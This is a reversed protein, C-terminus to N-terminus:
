NEIVNQYVVDGVINFIKIEAKGGDLQPVVINFSANAPNPFIKLKSGGISTKDVENSIQLAGAYVFMFADAVVVKSVACGSDSVVVRAGDGAPFHFEGLLNWVSGNVTQDIVFRRSGDLSRVVVSADNARNTGSRYWIYVRWLGSRPLNPAYVASDVQYTTSTWYYDTNWGGSGTAYAWSGFLSCGIDGDDIVVTDAFGAGPTFANEIGSWFENRGWEYGLAWFGVGMLSRNWAFNYCYDLAVADEYWGQRWSETRYWPSSANIDWLRGYIRSSEAAEYYFIARGTSTTTAGRTPGTCNWEYGYLPLGLVIKRGDGGLESLYNECSWVVDYSETPDDFPAVPGTRSSGSYYYNYAMIFIFDCHERLAPLKFAGSWDVPPIDVSIYYSPNITNLTERLEAIFSPLALSDAAQPTEFDINIGEGGELLLNKLNHALRARSAPNNLLYHIRSGDNDFLACVLDVSVGNLRAENILSVVPWGRREIINGLSDAVVAFYAVRSVLDWRPVTYEWS